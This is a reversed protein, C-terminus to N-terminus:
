LSVHRLPSVPRRRGLFVLRSETHLALLAYNKIGYNNPSVIGSASTQVSATATSNQTKVSAYIYTRASFSGCAVTRTLPSRPSRNARYARLSGCLIALCLLRTSPFSPFFPVSYRAFTWVSRGHIKQNHIQNDNDDGREVIVAPLSRIPISFWESMKRVRTM